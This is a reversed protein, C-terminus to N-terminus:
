AVLSKMQEECPISKGLSLLFIDIEADSKTAFVRCDHIINFLHKVDSFDLTLHLLLAKIVMQLEKHGREV